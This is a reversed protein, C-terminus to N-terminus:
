ISKRRRQTVGLKTRTRIDGETLKYKKWFEDDLLRPDGLLYKEVVYEGVKSNMVYVPPYLFRRLFARIQDELLAWAVDLDYERYITALHYILSNTTPSNYPSRRSLNEINAVKTGGYSFYRLEFRHNWQLMIKKTGDPPSPAGTFETVISNINHGLREINTAQLALDLPFDFAMSYSKIKENIKLLVEKVVTTYLIVNSLTYTSQYGEKALKGLIGGPELLGQGAPITQSKDGKVPNRAKAPTKTKPAVAETKPDILANAKEAALEGQAASPSDPLVVDATSRKAGIFAKKSIVVVYTRYYKGETYNPNIKKSYQRLLGLPLPHGKAEEIKANIESDEENSSIFYAVTNPSFIPHPAPAGKDMTGLSPVDAGVINAWSGASGGPGYATFGELSIIQKLIRNQAEKTKLVDPDSKEFAKKSIEVWGSFFIYSNVKLKIDDLADTAFFEYVGDPMATKWASTGQTAIKTLVSNLKMAKYYNIKITM